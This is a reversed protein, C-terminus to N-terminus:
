HMLPAEIAGCHAEYIPDIVVVNFPGTEDKRSAALVANPTVGKGAEKLQEIHKNREAVPMAALKQARTARKKTVGLEELTPADDKPKTRPPAKNSGGLFNGRTGRAKPLKALEAGIKAEASIWVEGARDAVESVPKFQRQYGAAANAIADVMELSPAKEIEEALHDLQALAKTASPFVASSKRQTVAGHM